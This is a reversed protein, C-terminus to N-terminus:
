EQHAHPPEVNGGLAQWVAQVTEFAQDAPLQDLAQMLDDPAHDDRAAAILEDRGAPFRAAALHRSLETRKEVDADTLEMGPFPEDFRRGPGVAPDEQLRGEQARSEEAAGHLLSDVDHALADDVRPSHKNSERDM